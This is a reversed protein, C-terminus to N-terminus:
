GEREVIWESGFLVRVIYLMLLVWVVCDTISIKPSDGKINVSHNIRDPM